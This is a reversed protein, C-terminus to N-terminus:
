ERTRRQYERCREVFAAAAEPASGWHLHVYSALASGVQYGEPRDNVFKRGRIRYALTMAPDADEEVIESYHFEHGRLM